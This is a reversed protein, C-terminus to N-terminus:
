GWVGAFTTQGSRITVLFSQGHSGIAFITFRTFKGTIGNTSRRTVIALTTFKLWQHFLDRTGSTFWTHSPIVGICDCLATAYATRNALILGVWGGGIAFLTFFTTNDIHHIGNFTGITHGSSVLGVFFLRGADIAHSPIIGIRVFLTITFGAISTEHGTCHFCCCDTRAGFARITPIGIGRRRRGTRLAFFTFFL